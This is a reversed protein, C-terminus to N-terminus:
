TKIELDFRLTGTSYGGRIGDGMGGWFILGKTHGGSTKIGLM